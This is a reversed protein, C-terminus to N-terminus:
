VTVKSTFGSAGTSSENGHSDEAFARFERFVSGADLGWEWNACIGVRNVTLNPWKPKVDTLARVLVPEEDVSAVFHNGDFTVRLRYDNGWSVRSGVNTWVANYIEETGGIRFFASISAGDYGDDLWTSVIFYNDDDQWFVVGARGNAGEGRREGPPTVLIELATSGSHPWPLTYSTRDSIPRGPTGDVCAGKPDEVNIQGHGTTLEWVGVSATECARGDLPVRAGTFSDLIRLTRAEAAVPARVMAEDPLRIERPQIELDRLAIGSGYVVLRIGTESSCFTSEFEGLADQGDVLARIRRGDDLIQLDHLSGEPLEASAAEFWEGSRWESFSIKSGIRVACGDGSESCRWRLEAEGDGHRDVVVRLFGAAKALELVAAGSSDSALGEDTRSLQGEIQWPRGFDAATGEGRLADAFLATGGPSSFRESEGSLVGYVQSASVFGVQGLAGQQICAFAERRLNALPVVSLQRVMPLAPLTPVGRMTTGAFFAVEDGRIATFYTIPVNTVRRVTPRYGNRDAICLEGNNAEAARMVFCAGENPTGGTAEPMWGFALNEDMQVFDDRAADRSMQWWKRFLWLAERKDGRWTWKLMRSMWPEAEAGKMWRKFRQRLTEGLLGGQSSNHGNLITTSIWSGATPRIPGLSYAHRGWGPHLPNGIRLSEGDTSMLKEADVGLRRGSGSRYPSGIVKGAQLREGFEAHADTRRNKSLAPTLERAVTM